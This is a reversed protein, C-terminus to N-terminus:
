LFHSMMAEYEPLFKEDMMFIDRELPINDFSYHDFKENKFLTPVGKYLLVAM